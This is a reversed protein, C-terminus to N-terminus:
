NQDKELKLKAHFIRKRNILSQFFMFYYIEKSEMKHLFLFSNSPVTNINLLMNFKQFRFSCSKDFIIYPFTKLARCKKKENFCKTLLYLSIKKYCM